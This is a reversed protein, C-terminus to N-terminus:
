LTALATRKVAADLDDCLRQFDSDALPGVLQRLHSILTPDQAVAQLLRELTTESLVQRVSSANKATGVLGIAGSRKIHALGRILALLVAAPSASSLIERRIEDDRLRLEESKVDLRALILRVRSLPPSISTARVSVFATVSALPVGDFVAPGAVLTGIPRWADNRDSLLLPACALEVGTALYTSLGRDLPRKSCSLSMRNAKADWSVTLDLKALGRLAALLERETEAEADPEVRASRDYEEIWPHLKTKTERVFGRMFSDIGIGPRLEVMAEVNKTAGIGWGPGTANASGLYTTSVAKNDEVLLLKAHLGDLAIGDPDSSDGMEVQFLVPARQQEQLTEVKKYTEDDLGDLAERTAVLQLEATRDVLDAVFDPRVFPSVVFARRMRKPLGGNLSPRGIGQWRLRLDNAAETPVDISVRRLYAPLEWVPKPMRTGEASALSMWSQLADAVDRCFPSGPAGRKEPEGDFVAALEFCTSQTMNRSCVIVRALENAGASKGSESRVFRMAWIKPHFLGTGPQVEVIMRDLLAVFRGGGPRSGLITAPHVLVRVMSGLRTAAIVAAVPDNALAEGDSDSMSLLAATLADLSLGFTTGV